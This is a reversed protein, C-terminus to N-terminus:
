ASLPDVEVGEYFKGESFEGIYEKHKQGLEILIEPFRKTGKPENYAQVTFTLQAKQMVSRAIRKTVEGGIVSRYV